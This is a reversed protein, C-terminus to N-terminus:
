LQLFITILNFITIEIDSIIVKIFIEMCVHCQLSSELEEKVVQFLGIEEKKEVTEEDNNETSKISEENSSQDDIEEPEDSDSQQRFIM